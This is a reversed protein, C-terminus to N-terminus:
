RSQIKNFQIVSDGTKKYIKEKYLLTMKTQGYTYDINDEQIFSKCFQKESYNRKQIFLYFTLEELINKLGFDAKIKSYASM